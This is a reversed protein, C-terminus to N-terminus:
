PTTIVELLNPYPEAAKCIQCLRRYAKDLSDYSNLLSKTNGESDVVDLVKCATKSYVPQGDLFTIRRFHEFIQVRYTWEVSQNDIIKLHLIKEKG